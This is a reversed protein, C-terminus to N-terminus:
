ATEELGERGVRHAPSDHTVIIKGQTKIADAEPNWQRRVCMVFSFGKELVDGILDASKSFEM